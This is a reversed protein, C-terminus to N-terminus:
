KTAEGDLALPNKKRKWLLSGLVGAIGLIILLTSVSDNTAQQADPVDLFFKIYLGGLIILL